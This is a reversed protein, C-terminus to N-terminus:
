GHNVCRRYAMTTPIPLAYKALKLVELGEKRYMELLSLHDPSNQLKKWKSKAEERTKPEWKNAKKLAAEQSKLLRYGQDAGNRIGYEHRHRM